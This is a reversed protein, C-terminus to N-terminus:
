RGVLGDDAIPEHAEGNAVSAAPLDFEAVMPAHFSDPVRGSRAEPGIEDLLAENHIEVSRCADGLAPTHHM